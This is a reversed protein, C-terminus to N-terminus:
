CGASAVFHVASNVAIQLALNHVQFFTRSIALDDADPSGSVAWGSQSANSSFLHAQIFLLTFIFSFFWFLCPLQLFYLAVFQPGLFLQVSHPLSLSRSFFGLQTSFIACRPTSREPQLAARGSFQRAKELVKLGAKKEDSSKKKKVWQENCVYEIRYVICSDGDDQPPNSSKWTVLQVNRM